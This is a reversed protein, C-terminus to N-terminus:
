RSVERCLVIVAFQVMLAGALAIWHSSTTLKGVPMLIAGM